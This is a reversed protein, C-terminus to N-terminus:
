PLDQPYATQVFGNSGVYVTIPKKDPDVKYVFVAKGDNTTVVRDPNRIIDNVLKEVDDSSGISDYKNVLDSTHKDDIHRWGTGDNGPVGREIWVVDNDLGPVEDQKKVVWRTEGLNGNSRVVALLDSASISSDILTDSKKTELM